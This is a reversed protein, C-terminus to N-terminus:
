AFFQMFAKAAAITLVSALARRLTLGSWKCAGFFSGVSGGVIAAVVWGALPDPWQVGAHVHGLIGAASNVWIFVASVAATEKPSAWRMLIFLPSLFIGGGVGVLGSLLGIGAGAGLTWPWKPLQFTEPTEAPNRFHIMRIGAWLLTLGLLAGYIKPSVHCRSGIYALPISGIAFPWLLSFRFHGARYYQVAGIGAAVLNLLLASPKMISPPMALLAMMALYGSAGGHGVSAYLAAVAAIAIDTLM